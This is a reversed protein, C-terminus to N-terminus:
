ESVKEGKMFKCYYPKSKFTEKAKVIRKDDSEMLENLKEPCIRVSHDWTAVVATSGVNREKFGAM